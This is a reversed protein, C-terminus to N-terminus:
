KRAWDSSKFLHTKTDYKDEKERYILIWAANMKPGAYALAFALRPDDEINNSTIVIFASVGSFFNAAEEALNEKRFSFSRRSCPISENLAWLEAARGVGFAGGAVVELGEPIVGLIQLAKHFIVANPEIDTSGLVAVIM